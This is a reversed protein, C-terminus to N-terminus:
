MVDGCRLRAQQLRRGDAARYRRDRLLGDQVRVGAGRGDSPLPHGAPRTLAAGGICFDDMPPMGVITAPYVADKRHTIATVHQFFGFASHRFAFCCRLGFVSGFAEDRLPKRPDLYSEIVFDANAPVEVTRAATM